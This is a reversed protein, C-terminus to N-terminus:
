VNGEVEERDINQFAENVLGPYKDAIYNLAKTNLENVKKENNLEEIAHEVQKAKKMNEIIQFWM